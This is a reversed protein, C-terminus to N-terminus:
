EGICDRDGVIWQRVWGWSKLQQSIFEQRPTVWLRIEAVAEEYARALEGEQERTLTPLDKIDAIYSALTERDHFPSEASVSGRVAQPGPEQTSPQLDFM